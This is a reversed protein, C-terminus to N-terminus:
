VCVDAHATGGCMHRSAQVLQSVESWLNEFVLRYIPMADVIVEGRSYAEAVRRDERIELLVPLAQEICYERVRADGADSRNIVVGSLIQLRRATQVALVLDHLGFPTPEAVLIM